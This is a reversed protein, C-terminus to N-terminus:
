STTGFQKFKWYLSEYSEIGDSAALGIRQCLIDFNEFLDKESVFVFSITFIQLM